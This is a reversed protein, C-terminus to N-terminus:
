AGVPEPGSQLSPEGGVLGGAARNPVFARSRRLLFVGLACLAFIAAAVLLIGLISGIVMGASMAGPQTMPGNMMPGMMHGMMQGCGM